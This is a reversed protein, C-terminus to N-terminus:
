CLAYPLVVKQIHLTREAIFYWDKKNGWHKAPCFNGRGSVLYRL